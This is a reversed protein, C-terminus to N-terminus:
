VTVVMKGFVTGAEMLRHAEPLQDLSFVQAAHGLGSAAATDVIRQLPIGELPCAASGFTFSGFFSLQVGCPMHTLPNFQALPTLGGLFGALCVRGDPLCAQLSPLLTQNGVLDLVAAVPQKPMPAPDDEALLVETAGAERLAGIRAPNRTTAIVEAGHARALHLAALGLSSTAGRLLLRQGPQLALNRHLCAWATAYSEPITALREWALATEVPVVNTAPVATYEAYSGNITRGMGGMLALVKQGERLRGSPDHAVTGVCEIGSVAAVEGWEGRRMYIEARNLGFARVRILVMGPAQQPMPVDQLQLVEPGGFQQRVMAKMDVEMVYPPAM